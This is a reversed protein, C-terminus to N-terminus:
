RSAHEQLQYAHRRPLKQLFDPLAATAPFWCTSASYLVSRLHQLCGAKASHVLHQMLVLRCQQRVSHQKGACRCDVKGKNQLSASRAQMMSMWFPTKRNAPAVQMICTHLCKRVAQRVQHCEVEQAVGDTVGADPGQSVEDRLQCGKVHAVVV